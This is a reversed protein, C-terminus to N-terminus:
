WSLHIYQHFAFLLSAIVTGSILIYQVKTANPNKSQPRDKAFQHHTLALVIFVAVLCFLTLLNHKANWLTGFMAGHSISLFVIYAGFHVRNFNAWGEAEPFKKIFFLAFYADVLGHDRLLSSLSNARKKLREEESGSYSGDGLSGLLSVLSFRDGILQDLVFGFRVWFYLLLMPVLLNLANDPMSLGFLSREKITSDGSLALGIAVAVLAGQLAILRELSKRGETYKSLRKDFIEKLKFYSEAPKLVEPPEVGGFSVARKVFLMSVVAWLMLFCVYIWENTPHNTKQALVGTSDAHLSTHIAILLSDPIM